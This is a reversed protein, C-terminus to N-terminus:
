ISSLCSVRTVQASKVMLDIQGSRPEQASTLDCSLRVANIDLTSSPFHLSPTLRLMTTIPDKAPMSLSKALRCLAHRDAPSSLM